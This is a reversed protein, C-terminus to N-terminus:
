PSPSLPLLTRLYLILVCVHVTILSVRSQVLRPFQSPQSLVREPEGKGEGREKM